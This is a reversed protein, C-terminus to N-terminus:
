LDLKRWLWWRRRDHGFLELSQSISLKRRMTKGSQRPGLVCVVPTDALATRVAGLLPRDFPKTTAM